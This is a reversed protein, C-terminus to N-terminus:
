AVLEAAAETLGRDVALRALQQKLLRRARHLRSRVTGIPCALVTAIEDYGLDDVFYLVATARYDDPLAALAARIEEQDLSAICDALPGAAATADESAPTLVEEGTDPDDLSLAVPARRRTRYGSRCVNLVIRLFWARFNTGREFSRFARWAQLSAQQVADEADAGDGGFQRATRFAAPLVPTLLQTFEDQAEDPTHM